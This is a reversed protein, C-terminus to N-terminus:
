SSKFRNKNLYIRLPIVLLESKSWNQVLKLFTEYFGEFIDEFVSFEVLIQMLDLKKKFFQFCWFVSRVSTVNTQRRDIEYLNIARLDDCFM